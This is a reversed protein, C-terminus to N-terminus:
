VIENLLSVTKIKELSVLMLFFYECTKVFFFWESLSTGLIIARIFFYFIDYAIM